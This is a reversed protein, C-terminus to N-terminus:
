STITAKSLEGSGEFSVSYTANDNNPFDFQLSTIIAKGSYKTDGAVGTTFEIDLLDGLSVMDFFAEANARAENTSGVASDHSYQGNCSGTWDKQGTEKTNWGGTVDKNATTRTEATITISSQEAYIAAEGNFTARMLRGNLVKTTM